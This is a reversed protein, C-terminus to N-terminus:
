SMSQVPSLANAFLYALPRPSGMLVVYYPRGVNRVNTAMVFHLLVDAGCPCRRSPPYPPPIFPMSSLYTILDCIYPVHSILSCLLTSLLSSLLAAQPIVYRPSCFLPLYMTFTLSTSFLLPRCRAPCLVRRSKYRQSGPPACYADFNSCHPFHKGPCFPISTHQPQHLSRTYGSM